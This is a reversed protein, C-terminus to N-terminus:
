EDQLVTQASLSAMKLAPILGFVLSATCSLGLMQTMEKLLDTLISVFSVGNTIQDLLGPIRFAMFGALSGLSSVLLAEALIMQIIESRKAGVAKLVGIEKRRENVMILLNSAIILAANAFMLVAIPLRLDDSKVVQVDASTRLLQETFLDFFLVKEHNELLFNSETRRLLTQASFFSNQPYAKQLSRVNNEISSLDKVIIALQQPQFGEGGAMHWIYKWTDLPLQIENSRAYLQHVYIYTYPDYFIGARMPVDLVGIVRLEFLLPDTHDYRTIGDQQSIRPVTIQLLDGVGNKREGPYFFQNSYIIAVLEGQDQDTFWRGDGIYKEISNSNHMEITLDRGRLPTERIGVNSYSLAPLQYRPYVDQVFDLSAISAVESLNFPASREKASIYGNQMLEPMMLDIDTDEVGVLHQYYRAAAKNSSSDVNVSFSYASIEGGIMSRFGEDKKPTYGQVFFATTVFGAALAISIFALMSQSINRWANIFGFRWFM